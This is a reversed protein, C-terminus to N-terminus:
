EIESEDIVMEKMWSDLESAVKLVNDHTLDHPASQIDGGPKSHRTWVILTAIRRLIEKTFM